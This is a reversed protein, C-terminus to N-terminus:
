IIRKEALARWGVFGAIGLITLMKWPVGRRSRGSPSEAVARRPEEQKVIKAIDGLKRAERAFTQADDKTAFPRSWDDYTGSGREGTQVIYPM